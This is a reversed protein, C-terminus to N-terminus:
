EGWPGNQWVSSLPARSPITSHDIDGTTLTWAAPRWPDPPRTWILVTPSSPTPVQKGPTGTGIIKSLYFQRSPFTAM